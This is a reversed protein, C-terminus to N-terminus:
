KALRNLYTITLNTDSTRQTFPLARIVQQGYQKTWIRSDLLAVVGRDEKSRILRGAGQKLDIIMDTMNVRHFAQDGHKRKRAAVVPDKEQPFPLKAILVLRLKEGQVDVGEWFSKLGFLVSKDTALFQSLIGSAQGDRGQVFCRIGVGELRPTLTAAVANMDDTSTFLFFANGKSAVILKEGCTALDSLYQAQTAAQGPPAIDKPIFLLAQKHYDFTHPLILQHTPKVGMEESLHGFSDGIALTASTIVLSSIAKLREAILPGMNVPTANVSIVNNDMKAYVVNNEEIMKNYQGIATKEEATASLPMEKVPLGQVAALALELRQLKGCSLAQLIAESREASSLNASIPGFTEWFSASSPNPLGLASMNSVISRKVEAISEFCDSAHADEFAPPRITWVTDNGRSFLLTTFMNKWAKNMDPVGQVIMSSHKLDNIVDNMLHESAVHSFASRLGEVLKHAEDVILINYKPGFYTPEVRKLEQGLLNHNTVVIQADAVEKRIQIYGCKSFYPCAKSVCQEATALNAWRPAQGPYEARDGYKSSRAWTLYRADILGRQEATYPCVYTAKGKAVAAKVEKGLAKSIAPIDKNVIQDQLSKKATSIVARGGALIIPVLYAYSKGCGVPGEIVATGGKSIVDDVVGAMSLQNKRVEKVLGKAPDGLFSISKSM